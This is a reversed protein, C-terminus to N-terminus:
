FFIEQALRFTNAHAEVITAIKPSYGGGMSAVVPVNNKKCLEFVL